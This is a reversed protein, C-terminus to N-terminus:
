IEYGRGYHFERLRRSVTDAHSNKSPPYLRFVDNKLNWLGFEYDMPYKDFLVRVAESMSSAM